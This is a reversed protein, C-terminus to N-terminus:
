KSCRNGTTTYSGSELLSKPVGGQAGDEKSATETNELLQATVKKKYLDKIETFGETSEVM